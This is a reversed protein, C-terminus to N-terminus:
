PDAGSSINWIFVPRHFIDLFTLITNINWQWWSKSKIPIANVHLHSVSCFVDIHLCQGIYFLPCILGLQIYLAQHYGNPHLINYVELATHRHVSQALPLLIFIICCLTVSLYFIKFYVTGMELCMKKQSVRWPCFRTYYIVIEICINATLLSFKNEVFISLGIHVSSYCHGESGGPPWDGM